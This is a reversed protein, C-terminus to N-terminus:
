KQSKKWMKGSGMGDPVCCVIQRSSPFDEVGITKPM